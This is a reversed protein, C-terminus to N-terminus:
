GVPRRLYVADVGDGRCGGVLDAIGEGTARGRECEIASRRSNRRDGCRCVSGAEAGGRHRCRETPRDRVIGAAGPEIGIAGRERELAYGIALEPVSRLELVTRG